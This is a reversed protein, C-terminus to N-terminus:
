RSSKRRSRRGRARLGPTTQDYEYHTLRNMRQEAARKLLGMLEPSFGGFSEILAALPECGNGKARAYDGDKRKVYGAGTRPKHPGDSPVGREAHGHVLADAEPLTNGFAVLAGRLDPVGDSGIPDFIKLDVILTQYGPAAFLAMIDPRHDSFSRYESPERICNGGWVSRMVEHLAMLVTFHRTQHGSFGDNQAVDGLHDFVKGHKSLRGSASAAATLPLGLRRQVQIRMAWTPMRFREYRPVANLFTGAHPQSVSLFRVMERRSIGTLRAGLHLWNSHHVISSYQRQAHELHKSTSGMESIPLLHARPVLGTPHFRCHGEGDKDYDYYISDWTSYVTDVKAHLTLLEKHCGRMEVLPPLTSTSIDVDDFLQPFFLCLPRWCLSWTGVVAAGAIDEQATLGM